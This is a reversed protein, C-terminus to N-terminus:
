PRRRPQDDDRGEDTGELGLAVEGAAEQLGAVEHLYEHISRDLGARRAVRLSEVGPRHPALDPVESADIAGVLPGLLGIKAQVGLHKRGVRAYFEDHPVHHSHAIARSGTRNERVADRTEGQIQKTSRTRADRTYGGASSAPVHTPLPTEGHSPSKRRSLLWACRVRDPVDFWQLPRRASGLLSRDGSANAPPGQGGPRRGGPRAARECWARCGEGCLHGGLDQLGQLLAARPHIQFDPVPDARELARRYRGQADLQATM